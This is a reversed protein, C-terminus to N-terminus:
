HDRSSATLRLHWPARLQGAPRPPCTRDWTARRDHHESRHQARATCGQGQGGQWPSHADCFFVQTATSATIQQHLALEKAQDWTLTRRLGDPLRSFASSVAHGVAAATSIGDPMHLLVLFRTRREVLTGIASRNGPGMILDGEWHGAQSRDEVEAPREDIMRM